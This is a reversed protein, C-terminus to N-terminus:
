FIKKRQNYYMGNSTLMTDNFLIDFIQLENRQNQDLKYNMCRNFYKEREDLNFLKM